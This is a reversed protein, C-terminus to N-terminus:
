SMGIVGVTQYPIWRMVAFVGLVDVVYFDGNGEVRICMRNQRASSSNLDNVLPALPTM